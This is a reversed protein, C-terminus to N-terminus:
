YDNGSKISVSRRSEFKVQPEGDAEEKVDVEDTEEEWGRGPSSGSADQAKLDHKTKPM